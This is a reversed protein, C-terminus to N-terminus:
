CNKRRHDQVTAAATSPGPDAVAATGVLREHAAIGPMLLCAAAVSLCVLWAGIVDRSGLASAPDITM